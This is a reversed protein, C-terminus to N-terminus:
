LFSPAFVHQARRDLLVIRHSRDLRRRLPNAAVLGGVGGGLIVVTAM